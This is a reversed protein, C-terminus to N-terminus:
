TKYYDKSCFGWGSGNTSDWRSALACIFKLKNVDNKFLKELYGAAGDKDFCEWLYFVLSFENIDLISESNAIAHIRAVYIKELEKLHVLSIIQEDKRESDGALKGYALEIRNIIRAMSGLGTKNVNEVASSIIAYKEEETKLRQIKM